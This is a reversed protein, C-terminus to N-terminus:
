GKTFEIFSKNKSNIEAKQTHRSRKRYICINAEFVAQIYELMDSNNNKSITVYHSSALISPGTSFATALYRDTFM